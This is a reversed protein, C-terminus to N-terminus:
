GCKGKGCKMTGGCKMGSEADHNCDCPRSPDEKHTCDPNDCHGCSKAKMGESAVNMSAGCKGAGCKMGKAQLPLSMFGLGIVTILALSTKRNFM